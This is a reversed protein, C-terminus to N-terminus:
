FVVGYTPSSAYGGALSCFCSEPGGFVRPAPVGGLIIVEVGGGGGGRTWWVCYYVSDKHLFGYAMLLGGLPDTTPMSVRLSICVM